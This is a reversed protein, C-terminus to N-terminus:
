QRASGPTEPKETGEDAESGADQPGDQKENQENVNDTDPMGPKDDDTEKDPATTTQSSQANQPAAHVQPMLVTGAIGLGVAVPLILLGTKQLRNM